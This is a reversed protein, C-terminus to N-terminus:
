MYSVWQNPPLDVQRSFYQIFCGRNLVALVFDSSTYEVYLGAGEDIAFNNTFNLASGEFLLLQQSFQSLFSFQCRASNTSIGFYTVHGAMSKYLTDSLLYSCTVQAKYIM